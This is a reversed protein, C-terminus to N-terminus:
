LRPIWDRSGQGPPSIVNTATVGKLWTSIQTVSCFQGGTVSVTSAFVTRGANTVCKHHSIPKIPPTSPAGTHDLHWLYNKRKTENTEEYKSIHYFLISLYTSLSSNENAYKKCENYQTSISSGSTQYLASIAVISHLSWETAPQLSNTLKRTTQPQPAAPCHPSFPSPSKQLVKLLDLQPHM